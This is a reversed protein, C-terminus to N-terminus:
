LFKLVKLLDLVFYEEEFLRDVNGNAISTKIELCKRNWDAARSM